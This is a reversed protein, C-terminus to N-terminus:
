RGGGGSGTADTYREPAELFKAKCSESCFYYTRGNHTVTAAATKEDISMGCVPDTAM